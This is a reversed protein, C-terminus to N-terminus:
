QCAVTFYVSILMVDIQAWESYAGVHKVSLALGFDPSNVDAPTWTEGWLDNGGGYGYYNDYTSWLSPSSRDATGVVGGKVIRVANDMVGVGSLSARKYSVTFGTITAFPPVTFGVGTTELYASVDSGTMAAVQAYQSDLGTLNDLGEWLRNGISADNVVTMPLYPGQHANATCGCQNPPGGGGCWQPANCGGCDLMGGCGDPIPGCAAGAAACTTPTCCYGGADCIQGAGCPTGQPADVDTVIGASCVKDTCPAPDDPPDTDDIEFTASGDGDCVFAHCDGDVTDPVSKAGAPLNTNLPSGSQCLHETCGNGDDPLDADDAGDIDEGHNCRQERCDGEVQIAGPTPVGSLENHACVGQGVCADETCPRLDDCQLPADDPTCPVVCAGAECAGSGLGVQCPLQDIQPVHAPIGDQCLDLTCPEHDDDHDGDDDVTLALGGDCVVKRCDGLLQDPADGDPAEEFVCRGEANCADISCPDDDACDADVKCTTPSGAGQGGETSDDEGCSAAAIAGLALAVLTTRRLQM